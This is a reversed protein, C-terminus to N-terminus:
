VNVLLLINKHYFFGKMINTKCGQQSVYFWKAFSFEKLILWTPTSV